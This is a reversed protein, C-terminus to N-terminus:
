LHMVFVIHGYCMAALLVACGQWCARVLNSHILLLSWM